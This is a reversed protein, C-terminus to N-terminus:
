EIIDDEFNLGKFTSSYGDNIQQFHIKELIQNTFIRIINENVINLTKYNDWLFKVCLNRANKKIVHYIKTYISLTSIAIQGWIRLFVNNKEKSNWCHINIKM